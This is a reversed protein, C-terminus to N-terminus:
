FDSASAKAIFLSMVDDSMSRLSMAHMHKSVNQILDVSPRTYRRLSLSGEKWGGYMAIIYEPYGGAALATAGGYRLSHTSIRDAPLGMSTVTSKMVRSLTSATLHSLGPVDFLSHADTAGADRSLSFYREFIAVSCNDGIQREILGIRGEGLQDTKAQGVNFRLWWAVNPGGTGVTHFPIIKRARNFFTVSSRLPPAPKGEKYLMESKRLLFSIAFMLSAFIRQTALNSLKVPLGRAGNNILGCCLLRNCERAAAPSFAMKISDAKPHIRHYLRELGDRVLKFTPTKTATTLLSVM